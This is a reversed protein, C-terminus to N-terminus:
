RTSALMAILYGIGLITFSIAIAQRLEPSM